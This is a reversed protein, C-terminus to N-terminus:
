VKALNLSELATILRTNEAPTRTALRVFEPLGFSACDRVLCGRQALAARFARADGVEVLFFHVASPIVRWGLRTIGDRLEQSAARIRALTDRLFADDQLVALGAAQAMANVSWPARVKALAAVIDPHAVAYGLRLGPIAYHKTMSRMAVVNARKAIVREEDQMFAVFAEDLVWLTEDSAAVLMEIQERTLYAGTPNNPNCIFALRPKEKAVRAALANVDLRFEDRARADVQVIRAGMIQAGVRYEGFTPGVILATDGPRLYALAVGRISELSGNGVVIHDPSVGLRNAIADRLESADPDPHREFSVRALAERVRPSVGFPNVNSSFDIVAGLANWEDAHFGGHTAARVADLEPRPKISM